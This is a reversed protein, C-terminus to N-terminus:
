RANKKLFADLENTWNQWDVSPARHGNDSDLEFFTADVGVDQLMKITDPAISPPFLKDSRSLVYLLPARAKAINPRADFQIAAKRLVILSNADFDNAWPEALRILEREVIGPDNGKEQRIKNDYSYQKLTEVRIKLM